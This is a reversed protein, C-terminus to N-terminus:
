KPQITFPEGRDPLAHALVRLKHVLAAREEFGLEGESHGFLVLDWLDPQYNGADNLLFTKLLVFNGKGMADIVKGTGKMWEEVGDIRLDAMGSRFHEYKRAVFTGGLEIASKADLKERALIAQEAQRLDALAQRSKESSRIGAEVRM